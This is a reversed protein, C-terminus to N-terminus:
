DKTEAQAVVCPWRLECYTGKPQVNGREFQGNLRKALKLSQRTGWNSGPKRSFLLSKASATSSSLESHGNDEVRIFNIQDANKCIVTLRTPAKAHKGVNCLAEELFQCLRRRDKLSLGSTDLPDFSHVRFKLSRFGSFDRNMTQTYVGFLVEDLPDELNLETDGLVLTNATEVGHTAMLRDELARLEQTIQSIKFGIQEPNCGSDALTSLIRLEQIPGNHITTYAEQIVQQREDIRAQMTQDYLHFGSLILGNIGFVVLPPVVPIWGGWLWLWGFSGLVLAGGLFIVVLVYRRPASLRHVLWLGLGGWVVIWSYELVDPWVSIPPRNNLAQDLLQSVAHAHVEVGYILGPLETKIAATPVIDQYSPATVGILVVRDRIWGPEFDGLLVSQMSIRRFAPNGAHPDLLVQYGGTQGDVYAGSNPRLRFLSADGLRVNLGSESSIKTAINEEALYAMALRLSLSVLPLGTKEDVSALLLRRIFGDSDPPVTVFGVQEASLAPPPDVAASGIGSIGFINPVQEFAEVLQSYGPEVPSDRFIDLGIARPQYQGLTQLLEALAQDPISNGYRQFDAEEITVIVVREDLSVAPRLRLFTDFAWWEMEQFLGLGRAACVIGIVVMGPIYTSPSVSSLKEKLANLFSNM